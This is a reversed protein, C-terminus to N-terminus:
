WCRYMATSSVLDRPRARWGYPRCSEEPIGSCRSNEMTDYFLFPKWCNSKKRSYLFINCWIIFFLLMSLFNSAEKKAMSFDVANCLNISFVISFDTLFPWRWVIKVHNVWYPAVDASVIMKQVLFFLYNCLKEGERDWAAEVSSETLASFWQNWVRLALFLLKYIIPRIIFLIWFARTGIGM